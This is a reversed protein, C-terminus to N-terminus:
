YGVCEFKPVQLEEDSKGWIALREQLLNAYRRMIDLQEQMAGRMRRSLGKELIAKGFLFTTLKVIKENLEELEKEVREKAEDKVVEMENSVMLIEGLLLKKLTVAKVSNWECTECGREPFGRPKQRFIYSDFTYSIERPRNLLGNRHGNRWDETYLYFGNGGGSPCM